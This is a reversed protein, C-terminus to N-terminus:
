FYEILNEVPQPNKKWKKLKYFTLLLTSFRYVSASRIGGVKVKEGDFCVIILLSIFIQGHSVSNKPFWLQKLGFDPM